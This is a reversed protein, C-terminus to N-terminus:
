GTPIAGLQGLFGLMDVQNRTEVIQGNRLKYFSMGTLTLNKGTAAIGAISIGTHTMSGTWRAAVTDGDAVIDDIEYRADSAVMMVGRYDDLAGQPGRGPPDHGYDVYDPSIIEELGEPRHQNFVEFFRRVVAENDASGIRGNAESM